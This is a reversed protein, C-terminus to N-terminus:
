RNQMLYGTLYPCGIIASTVTGRCEFVYWASNNTISIQSKDSLLLWLSRQLSNKPDTSLAGM